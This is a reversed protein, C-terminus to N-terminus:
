GSGCRGSGTGQVKRRTAGDYTLTYKMCTKSRCSIPLTQINDGWQHPFASHRGDRSDRQPKRNGVCVRSGGRGPEHEIMDKRGEGEGDERGEGEGDESADEGGAERWAEGALEVLSGGKGASGAKAPTTAAAEM